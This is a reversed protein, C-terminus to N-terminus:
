YNFKLRITNIFNFLKNKGFIKFILYSIIINLISLITKLYLNNKRAYYLKDKIKIFPINPDSGVGDLDMKVIKFNFYLFNFQNDYKLRTWLDLDGFIRYNIDFKYKKMLEVKVFAGQHVFWSSTNNKLNSKLGKVYFEVDFYLINSNNKRTISVVKNLTNNSFFTESSNLFYIYRGEALDVGKNMADFIGNDREIILKNIKAKFKNIVEISGDDSCGDIVILESNVSKQSIFSEISNKLGRKNNLNIIVVTIQLM